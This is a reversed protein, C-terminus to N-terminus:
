RDPTALCHGVHNRGNGTAVLNSRSVGAECRTRRRQSRQRQGSAGLTRLAASVLRSTEQDQTPPRLRRHHRTLSDQPLSAPGTTAGPPPPGRARTTTREHRRPPPRPTLRPQPQGPPQVRHHDPTGLAM